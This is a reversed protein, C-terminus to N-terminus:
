DAPAPEPQTPVMPEVGPIAGSPDRTPDAAPAPAVPDVPQSAAPETVPPAATERGSYSYIAAIVALVLVAVVLLPGSGGGARGEARLAADDHRLQPDRTSRLPEHEYAM